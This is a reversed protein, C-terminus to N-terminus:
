DVSILYFYARKANELQVKTLKIKKGCDREWEEFWEEFTAEKLIIYPQGKHLNLDYDIIGFYKKGVEKQIYSGMIM